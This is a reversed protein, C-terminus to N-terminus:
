MTPDRCFTCVFIMFDFIFTWLMPLWHAFEILVFDSIFFSGSPRNYLLIFMSNFKQFVVFSLFFLCLKIINQEHSVNKNLDIKIELSIIFHVVRIIRIVPAAAVVIVNADCRFASKYLHTSAGLQLLTNYVWRSWIQELFFRVPLYDILSTMSNLNQIFVPFSFCYPSPDM